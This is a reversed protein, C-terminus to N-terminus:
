VNERIDKKPLYTQQTLFATNLIYFNEPDTSEGSFETFGILFYCVEVLHPKVPSLRNTSGAM